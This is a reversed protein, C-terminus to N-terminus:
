VWRGYVPMKSSFAPGNRYVTSFSSTIHYGVVVGVICQGVLAVCVAGVPQNKASQALITSMGKLVSFRGLTLRDRPYGNGCIIMRARNQLSHHPTAKTYSQICVNGYSRRVEEETPLTPDLNMPYDFDLNMSYDPNLDNQDGHHRTDLPALPPKGEVPQKSRSQTPKYTKGNNRTEGRRNTIYRGEQYQEPMKQAKRSM